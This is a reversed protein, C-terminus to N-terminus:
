SKYEKVCEKIEEVSLGLVKMSSIYEDTKEVIIKELLKKAKTIDACVFWGVGKIATLINNRKLLNFAHQITNPNVEIMRAIKRISLLREGPKLKNNVILACIQEVIQPCLPKTKDLHILLLDKEKIDM